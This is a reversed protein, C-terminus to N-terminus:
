APRASQRRSWFVFGGIGGIVFGAPGTIFLGLLAGQNDQPSVLLPGFFGITFGVAGIVVAGMFISAALGDPAKESHTWVFRSLALAVIFAVASAIWVPQGIRTLFVAGLLAVVYLAAVATVFMLLSRAILRAM